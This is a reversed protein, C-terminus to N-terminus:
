KIVDNYNVKQLIHGSEYMRDIMKEFEYQEIPAYDPENSGPNIQLRLYEELMQRQFRSNTIINAQDTYTKTIELAEDINERTYDWGRKSARVFKDITEKNDKYYQQTVYLGDEPITYGFDYYKFTNKPDIHGLSQLLQLYENYSYCLTADVAKYIFLNIGNIFPVWNVKLGLNSDMIECIDSHGSKWRGVRLGDLESPTSIPTHSVCMLGTKQTLQFVNVLPLNDSCAIMAQLLQIGAIQVEGNLLYETVSETSNVGLHKFEVDLGEEKYFGKEFAVYYGAFQSQPTWQPMFIIKQAFLPIGLMLIILITTARKNM